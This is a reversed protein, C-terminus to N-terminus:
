RELFWVDPPCGSVFEGHAARMLAAEAVATGDHGCQQCAHKVLEPGLKANIGRISALIAPFGYTRALLIVIADLNSFQLQVVAHACEAEPDRFARVPIDERVVTRGKFSDILNEFGRLGRREFERTIENSAFAWRMLLAVDGPRFGHQETLIPWLAEFDVDMQPREYRPLSRVRSLLDPLSDNLDLWYDFLDVVTWEPCPKATYHLHGPQRPQYSAPALREQGDITIKRPAIPRKAVAPRRM